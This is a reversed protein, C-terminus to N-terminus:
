YFCTFTAHSRSVIPTWSYSTELSPDTGFDLMNKVVDYHGGAAATYLSSVGDSGTTNVNANSARLIELVAGHDPLRVAEAWATLGEKSRHELTAGKDLLIKTLSADNREAARHLATRGQWDAFNVDPLHDLLQQVLSVHLCDVAVLLAASIMLIKHRSAELQSIASWVADNDGEYTGFLLKEESNLPRRKTAQIIRRNLGDYRKGVSTFFVNRGVESNLDVSAGMDALSMALDLSGAEMVVSLATQGTSDEENILQTDAAFDLVAHELGLRAAAHLRTTKTPVLTNPSDSQQDSEFNCRYVSDYTHSRRLAQLTYIRSDENLLLSSVLQNLSTNETTKILNARRVYKSLNRAMHMSWTHIHSNLMQMEPSMSVACLHGISVRTLLDFADPFHRMQNDHFYKWTARHTLSFRDMRKYYVVFGVCLETLDEDSLTNSHDLNPSETDLGVVYSMEALSMTKGSYAIWMLIKRAFASDSTNQQELRNFTKLHLEDTNGPLTTIAKQLQEPTRQQM